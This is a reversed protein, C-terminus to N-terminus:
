TDIVLPAQKLNLERAILTGKGAYIRGDGGRQTQGARRNATWAGSDEV